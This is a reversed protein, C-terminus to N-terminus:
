CSTISEILPFGFCADLYFVKEPYCSILDGKKWQKECDAEQGYKFCKTLHETTGTTGPWELNFQGQNLHSTKNKM